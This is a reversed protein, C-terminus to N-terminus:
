GRQKLYAMTQSVSLCLSAPGNRVFFEEDKGIKLFAPEPSPQCALLGITKNRYQVLEFNTYATFEAGIHQNILNKVHRGCHDDSKFEDAELGLAEGEDDVGFFLVGGESNLFAVVGKLWAKEIEKGLKGSGLNKRITSKFEQHESEGAAIREDINSQSVTADSNWPTREALQRRYRKLQWFIIILGVLVLAGAIAPLAFNQSSLAEIIDKEPILIVLRHIPNRPNIPRVGVWWTTGNPKILTPPSDFNASNVGAAIAAQLTPDESPKFIQDPTTEMDTRALARGASDILYVRGGPSTELDSIFDYFNNIPVHGIAGGSITKDDNSWTIAGFIAPGALPALREPQMWVIKEEQKLAEALWDGKLQRQNAIVWGNATNLFSFENIGDSTLTLGAVNPFTDLVPRVGLMFKDPNALDLLDERGWKAVIHLLSEVRNIYDSVESQVRSAIKDTLFTSIDRRTQGSQFQSLSVILLSLCIVTGTITWGLRQWLKRKNSTM